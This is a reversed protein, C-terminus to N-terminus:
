TTTENGESDETETSKTEIPKSKFLQCKGDTDIITERLACHYHDNDICDTSRCVKIRTRGFLSVMTQFFENEESFSSGRLASKIGALENELTM